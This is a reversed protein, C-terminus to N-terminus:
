TLTREFNIESSHTADVTEWVQLHQTPSSLSKIQKLLKSIRHALSRIM